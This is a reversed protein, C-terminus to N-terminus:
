RESGKDKNFLQELTKNSGDPNKAIKRMRKRDEDTLSLEYLFDTIIEENWNFLPCQELIKHIDLIAFGKFPASCYYEEKEPLHICSCYPCDFCNEVKRCYVKSM